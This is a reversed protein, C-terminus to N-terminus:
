IVCGFLLWCCVQGREVGLCFGVASKVGKGKKFASNDLTSKNLVVDVGLGKVSQKLMQMADEVAGETAGCRECTEGQEDVLRQWRIELTKM